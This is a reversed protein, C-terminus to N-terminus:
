RRARTPSTPSRTSRRASATASSSRADARHRPERLYQVYTRYLDAVALGPKLLAKCAERAGIMVEWIQKQEDTPAGVVATRTVNSRYQSCTASSRWASSTAREIAKDTPSCNTIGSRVGSGVQIKLGDCGGDMM